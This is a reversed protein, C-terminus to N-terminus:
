VERALEKALDEELAAVISPLNRELGRKLIFKPKIKVRRLLLYVPRLRALLANLAFQRLEPVHVTEYVKRYARKYQAEDYLAGSGNIMQGGVEGKVRGMQIKLPKPYDRASIYRNVGAPTLAGGDDTPVALFGRSKKPKIEGGFEQIGAYALAPGTFVGVRVAPLSTVLDAKGIISRAYNGTRRRLPGGKGISKTIDGATLLASRQFSDMIVKRLRDRDTFKKALAELRAVAEEAFNVQPLDAM